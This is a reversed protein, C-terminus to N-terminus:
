AAILYLCISLTVLSGLTSYLITGSVVAAERRYFEALMYPGTGTPLAALLLAAQAWFLSLDFVYIALCWAIAPQVLLKLAVLLPVGGEQRHQRKALFAGLSVLACPTTALGLMHLFKAAPEFLPVGSVAWLGGAVPAVVLPNKALAIAVQGVAAGVTKEQQLGIEVCVVAIAFLVCVVVLTAILAPVLGDDGLVLVCLPIGIYGTNAYAAGLGDISADALPLSRYSRYLVTAAFISMTSIVSVAVFGPQWIQHWSATATSEFLLAPLCLWVVFRNLEAAATDGLRNTRRCAYGALILGFIPLLVNIVSAM